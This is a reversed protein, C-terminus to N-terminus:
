LRRRARRAAIKERRAYNDTRQREVSAASRMAQPLSHPYGAKVARRDTDILIFVLSVVYIGLSYTIGTYTRIAIPTPMFVMYLIFLPLVVMTWRAFHRLVWTRCTLDHLVWSSHKEPLMGWYAYRILGSLPPRVVAEHAETM